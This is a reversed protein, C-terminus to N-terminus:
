AAPFELSEYAEFRSALKARVGTLIQSVRSETVGLERGIETGTLRHVHVLALVTRERDSLGAIVARLADGRQASVLALEPDHMGTPAEITDAIDTDGDGAGRVPTSLSVVSARDVDGLRERLESLQIGLEAALERDSPSRGTRSTLRDRAREIERAVRRVSRPAWDQGRLEDVIAGSVRIWAYQEFTAGKAPDFRDVAAVLAALGCAVLDEVDVHTPLERVKRLALYRVLPAHSLVLHDRARANGKVKWSRWCREAEEATLRHGTALM